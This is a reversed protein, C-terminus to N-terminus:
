LKHPSICVADQYAMPDHSSNMDIPVYPGAAAYDWFALAQFEHLIKSVGNVDELVGSVNSCASFSGIKLPFDKCRELAKRLQNQDLGVGNESDPIGILTVGLERWPLLNSNHEYPGIFVVCQKARTAVDPYRQLVTTRILKTICGTVGAGVFLVIDKEEDVHCCEGIFRRAEERFKGTQAGSFDVTTHTNGYWPLVKQTVAQEVQKLPRGSAVWDCYVFPLHMPSTPDRASFWTEYAANKATGVVDNALNQLPDGHSGSSSSAKKNSVSKRSFPIGSLLVRAISKRANVDKNPKSLATSTPRQKTDVTSPM